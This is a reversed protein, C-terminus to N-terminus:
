KPHPIIDILYYKDGEIQFYIRWSSNIRGQWVDRAEDYKKARLSPHRLDQVLLSLQKNCQKQVRLPADEYSRLFRDTYFLQM